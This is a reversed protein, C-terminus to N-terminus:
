AFTRQVSPHSSAMLVTTFSATYTHKTIIVKVNHLMGDNAPQLLQYDLEKILDLRTLLIM